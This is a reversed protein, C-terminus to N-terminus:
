RLEWEFVRAPADLDVVTLTLRSASDLLSWSGQALPFALTGSVHHGGRPAEWAEAAIRLGTDTTLTSLLALDMSLDVSHTNLAVEFEIRDAAGDLNMPTVEVVIAGQEDVRALTSSAGAFPDTGAPITDAGTQIVTTPTSAPAPEATCASLLLLIGTLVVLLTRSM